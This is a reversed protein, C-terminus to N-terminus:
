LGNGTLVFPAWYYPHQYNPHDILSLQAQRLASSQTVPTQPTSKALQSYFEHMLGQTSADDVLWLSALVTGARGRLFYSSLGSIEIGDQDAGGLATQCASLVVLAVQNLYQLTQIEPITLKKGNGLLLYSDEPRGPVFAAHTAMHLVQHGILKDRLVPFNFSQNLFKLGLYIGQPDNANQRVIADLEKPVNPLAREDKFESAGLALVRTDAVRSPLRKTLDTLEASLITSVTYTEILYQKGDFLAAMPIYRTVRDLSFVLNKIQNAKLEKEIPQILWKYLVQGKERVTKQGMSYQSVAERFELVAKGLEKRSVPVEQSKLIGGKSAWLLWLKQDQVFPYILVTDPQAEVIQRIKGTHTPNLADPDGRKALDKVLANATQIYQGILMDLQDRLQTQQACQTRDCEYLKKGFAILSGHQQQITIETKTLAIATPNTSPNTNRTFERLEQVKLLELVAQAELIRGQSLLLDALTRYTDAVTQTYSEQDDQPLQRLNRRIAERTNVSQKYFAIALDPQKQTQAVTGINSLVTAEGARDGVEMYIGLAQRFAALAQSPQQLQFQTVGIYNLVDAQNARDGITQYVGLSQQYRELAQPYQQQFYHILGLMVLKQSERQRDGSKQASALDKQVIDRRKLLEQSTRMQRLHGDAKGAVVLATQYFQVWTSEDPRKSLPKLFDRLRDNKGLKRYVLALKGQIIVQGIRDNNEEFFNDAQKYLALANAYQGQIDQIDAIAMLTSGVGSHYGLEKRLALARRYVELAEPYRGQAQYVEGINHLAQAQQGKSAQKEAITL